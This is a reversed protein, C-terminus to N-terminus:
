LIMRQVAKPFLKKACRKCYSVFNGKKGGQGVMLWLPHTTIYFHIRGCCGCTQMPVTGKAFHM